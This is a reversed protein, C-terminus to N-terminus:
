PCPVGTPLMTTKMSPCGRGASYRRKRMLVTSPAFSTAIIASTSRRRKLRAACALGVLLGGALVLAPARQGVQDDDVAALRLEVGGQVDSRSTPTGNM